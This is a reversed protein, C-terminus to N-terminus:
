VPLYNVPESGAVNDALILRIQSYSGNPVKVEGLSKLLFKLTLVDVELPTTYSAVVPLVPDDDASAEKGAPVVRVEKISIVLKLFDDSQKDTLSMKLTGSTTSSTPSNNGGCGALQGIIFMAALAFTAVSVTLTSKGTM